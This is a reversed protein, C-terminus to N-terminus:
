LKGYVSEFLSTFRALKEPHRVNNNEGHSDILTEGVPIRCSDGRDVRGYAFGSHGRGRTVFTIESFYPKLRATLVTWDHNWWKQWDESYCDPFEAADRLMDKETNMSLRMKDVWKAGTMAVYGMPIYTFDTLDHGFVTIQAPDPKWYDSLPLLDMDSIMILADSPLYNAAYLRSCQAITASRLGSINPLRIIISEPNSLQLSLPDVDHTTIVCLDWGYKNWAKEIYPAYFYYDESNNTSVVVYKKKM